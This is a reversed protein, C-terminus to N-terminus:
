DAAALSERKEKIILNVNNLCVAQLNLGVTICLDLTINCMM